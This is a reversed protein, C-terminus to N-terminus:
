RAKSLNLRKPSWNSAAPFGGKIIGDKFASIGARAREIARVSNSM